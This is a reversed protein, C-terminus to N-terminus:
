HRIYADRQNRDLGDLTFRSFRVISNPTRRLQGDSVDAGDPLHHLKGLARRLAGPISPDGHIEDFGDLLLMVEGRQLLAAM